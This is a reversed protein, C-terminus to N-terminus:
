AKGRGTRAWKGLLSVVGTLATLMEERDPDLTIRGDSYGWSEPLREIARLATEARSLVTRVETLEYSTDRGRGM